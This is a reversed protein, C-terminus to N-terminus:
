RLPCGLGEATPMASVQLTAMAEPDNIHLEADKGARFHYEGAAMPQCNPRSPPFVCPRHKHLCNHPRRCAHTCMHVFTSACQHPLTCPSMERACQILHIAGKLNSARAFRRGGPGVCVATTAELLLPKRHPREPDRACCTSIQLAHRRRTMSRWTVEPNICAEDGPCASPGQRHATCVLSQLVCVQECMCVQTLSPTRM